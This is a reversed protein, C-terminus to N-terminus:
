ASVLEVTFAKGVQRVGDEDGLAVIPDIALELLRGGVFRARGIGDATSRLAVCVEDRIGWGQDAFGERIM